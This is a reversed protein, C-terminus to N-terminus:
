RATVSALRGRIAELTDRVTFFCSLGKITKKM